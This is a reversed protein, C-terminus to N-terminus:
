LIIFSNLYIEKSRFYFIEPLLFKTISKKFVLIKKINFNIKKKLKLIIKFNGIQWYFKKYIKKKKYLDFNLENIIDKFKKNYPFFKSFIKSDPLLPFM